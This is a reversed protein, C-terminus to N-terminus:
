KIGWHGSYGRGVYSLQSIKKIEREITNKSVGIKQAMEGRTVKNDAKVLALIQEEYKSTKEQAVDKGEGYNLNYLTLLFDRHEAMFKPM